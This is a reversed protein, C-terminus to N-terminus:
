LVGCLSCPRLSCCSSSPSSSFPCAGPRAEAFGFELCDRLAGCARFSLPHAAQVDALTKLIQLITNANHRTANHQTAVSDAVSCPPARCVLLSFTSFSLAFFLSVRVRAKLCAKDCFSALGPLHGRQRLHPAFSRLLRLAQCLAPAARAVLPAEELTKADSTCAFVLFRRIAQPLSLGNEPKIMQNPSPVLRGCHLAALACVM